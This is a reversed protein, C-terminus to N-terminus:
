LPSDPSSGLSPAAEFARVTTSSKFFVLPPQPFRRFIRNMATIQPGEPMPGPNNRASQEGGRPALVVRHLLAKPRFFVLCFFLPSANEPGWPAGACCLCDAGVRMMAKQVPGACVRAGMATKHNPTQASSGVASSAGPSGLATGAPGPRAEQGAPAGAPGGSRGKGGKRIRERCACFPLLKAIHFRHHLDAPPPNVIM